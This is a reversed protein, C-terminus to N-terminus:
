KYVQANLNVEDVWSGLHLIPGYLFLMPWWPLAWPQLLLWDLTSLCQRPSTLHWYDPLKLTYPWQKLSINFIVVLYPNYPQARFWDMTLGLADLHLTVSHFIIAVTVIDFYQWQKRHFIATVQQKLIFHLNREWPISFFAKQWSIRLDM